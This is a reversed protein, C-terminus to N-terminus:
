VEVEVRHDDTDDSLPVRAAGHEAPIARGDVHVAAVEGAGGSSNRVEVDWVGARGFPRLRLRFGPWSPPIAPRIVLTTGGEITVGLVSELTVRLM